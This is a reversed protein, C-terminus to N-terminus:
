NPGLSTGGIRRNAVSFTVIEVRKGAHAIARSIIDVLVAATPIAMAEVPLLM